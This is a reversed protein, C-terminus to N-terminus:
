VADLNADNIKIVVGPIQSKEGKNVSSKLTIYNTFLFNRSTSLPIPITTVAMAMIATPIANM